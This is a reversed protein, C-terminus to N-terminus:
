NTKQRLTWESMGKCFAILQGLTAFENADPVSMKGWCASPRPQGYQIKARKPFNLRLSALEVLADPSQGENYWM